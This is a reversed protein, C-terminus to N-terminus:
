VLQRSDWITSIWYQVTSPVKWLQTKHDFLQFAQFLVSTAQRRVPGLGWERLVILDQSTISAFCFAFFFFFTLFLFPVVHNNNISKLRRVHYLPSIRVMLFSINAPCVKQFLYPRSPSHYILQHIRRQVTIANAHIERSIRSHHQRSAGVEMEILRLEKNGSSDFLIMFSYM